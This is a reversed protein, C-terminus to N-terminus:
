LRWRSCSPSDGADAASPGCIQGCTGTGAARPGTQRLCCLWSATRMRSSPMSKRRLDTAIRQGAALLPQGCESGEEGFPLASLRTALMSQEKSLNFEAPGPANVVSLKDASLYLRLYVRHNVPQGRRRLEASVRRYGCRRKHEAFIEQIASRVGMDEEVPEQEQLSRYFGARSVGALRCMREIGLKGQMSMLERIQDYIGDRWTEHEAPRSGRSKALCRSFFGGGANTRWCRSSGGTRGNWRLNGPRRWRVDRWELRDLPALQDRWQYLVSRHVGLEKALELISDCNRMREVAKERFMRPYKGV